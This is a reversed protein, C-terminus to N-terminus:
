TQGILRDFATRFDALENALTEFTSVPQQTPDASATVVSELYVLFLALADHPVTGDATLARARALLEQSRRHFRIADADRSYQRQVALCEDHIELLQAALVQRPTLKARILPRVAALWKKRALPSFVLVLTCLVILSALGVSVRGPLVQAVVALGTLPIAWSAIGRFGYGDVRWMVAGWAPVGIWVLAAFEPAVNLLAVALVGLLVVPTIVAITQGTESKGAPDIPKLRNRM